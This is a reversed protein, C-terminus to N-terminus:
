HDPFAVFQRTQVNSSVAVFVLKAGELSATSNHVSYRLRLDILLIFQLAISATM